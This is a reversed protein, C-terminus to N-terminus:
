HAPPTALSLPYPSIFSCAKCYELGSYYQQRHLVTVLLLTVLCAFAPRVLVLTFLAPIHTVWTWVGCWVVGCLPGGTRGESRLVGGRVVVGCWVGRVARVPVVPLVRALCVAPFPSLPAAAPTALV